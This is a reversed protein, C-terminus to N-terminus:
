SADHGNFEITGFARKGTLACGRASNETSALFILWHAIYRMRREASDKEEQEFFFCCFSENWMPIHLFIM